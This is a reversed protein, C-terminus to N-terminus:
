FTPGRKTLTSQKAREGTMLGSEKLNTATKSSYQVMEMNKIKIGPEKMDRSRIPMINSEREKDKIIKQLFDTTSTEM